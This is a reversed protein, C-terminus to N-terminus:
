NASDADGHRMLERGFSQIQGNERCFKECIAGNHFWFDKTSLNVCFENPGDKHWTCTRDIKGQLRQTPNEFWEFMDMIEFNETGRIEHLTKSGHYCTTMTNPVSLDRIKRGDKHSPPMDDINIMENNMNSTTRSVGSIQARIKWVKRWENTRENTVNNNKNTLNKNDNHIEEM